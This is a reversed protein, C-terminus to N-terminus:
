KGMLKLVDPLKNNYEDTIFQYTKLFDRVQQDYEEMSIEGIIAKAVISTALQAAETKKTITDDSLKIFDMLNISAKSQQEFAIKMGEKFRAAYEDRISPNVKQLEMDLFIDSLRDSSYTFMFGYLSRVNFTELSTPTPKMQGNEMTYDVGEIGWSSLKDVEDSLLVEILRVVADKHKTSAGIAVCHGELIGAPTYVDDDTVRPDDVRPLPGPVAIAEEVGNNIYHGIYTIVSNLDDPYIIM